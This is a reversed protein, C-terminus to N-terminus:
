EFRMKLGETAGSKMDEIAKKRDKACFIASGAVLWSAGHKAVLKANDPGIGGDVQINLSPYKESLYTVKEMMNPMFKQGGFGPEVTMVLIKDILGQSLLEEIESDVPTKPSLAMGVGMNNKKILECM